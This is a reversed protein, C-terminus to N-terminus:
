NDLYMIRSAYSIAPDNTAVDAILLLYINNKYTDTANVGTYSIRKSFRRNVVGTQRIDGAQDLGHKKDYIVTFRLLADDLIPSNVANATGVYQLVQAATPATGTQLKDQIILVRAVQSTVAAVNQVIDYSFSFHKALVSNGSRNNNDDGAAIGSLLVIPVANSMLSGVGQQDFVYKNADILSRATKATTLAKTAISRTTKGSTLKSKRTKFKFAM